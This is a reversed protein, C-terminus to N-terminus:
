TQPEIYAEDRKRFAPMTGELINIIRKNVEPSEISGSYYRIEDTKKDMSAQIIQEADCVVALNPNHTVIIIQRNEKARKIYPVLLHYVSENDLNEEPQDIILPIKDRDILLYFILLIAGKEGPSFEDQNLDKGNFMLKYKVDLYDIHYLLKFLERKKNDGTILQKDIEMPKSTVVSKDYKLNELIDNVFFIIEDSSNFTYHQIIEKLRATGPQRGQFSGDRGHDIFSLFRTSFSEKDCVVGVEFTLVSDAKEQEAKQKTIFDTLPKYITEYIAQKEILTEYLTRCTTNICEAANQLDVIIANSIYTIEAKIGSITNLSTDDKNGMIQQQKKLYDAHLRLYEQYAKNQEDLQDQIFNLKKENTTKQERLSTIRDQLEKKGTEAKSRLATIKDKNIDIKVIDDLTLDVIQLDPKIKLKFDEIQGEFSEVRKLLNWATLYRFSANGQDEEAKLLAEDTKAIADTLTSIEGKTTEEPETTPKEIKKPEVLSALEQQKQQLKNALSQRYVSSSKHDLEFYQEIQNSINERLRTLKDDIVGTTSDILGSLNSTGFREDKPIYSFVVKDIADQFKDSIGAENCITEVYQQPLYRVREVEVETDVEEDLVTQQSVGDSWTLKAEYNKALGKKRFKDKNLFPYSSPTMHSRGALALVDTFASKGSGKKGIVAVLGPNLPLNDNFWIGTKPTQGNPQILISEIYKSKNGKVDLIKPPHSGIFVRTFPENLIRRLGNFSKDAKIWCYAKIRYDKANHNDSCLVMPPTKLKSINPIVHENYENFDQPRGIEFIDIFELLDEKVAQKFAPTNEINEISNTKNCAHVSILGGLDHVLKASEIFDSYIRGDGKKTLDAPTLGLKGQLKTWISDIDCNCIEPFIAIFHISESGGLESRLEIGPLFLITQKAIEQLRKIRSTDIFHHDTVAVVEINQALLSDIINQDTVSKNTYDFSSPTHFHLDWKRWESGRPYLNISFM